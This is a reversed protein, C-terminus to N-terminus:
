VSIPGEIKGLHFFPYFFLLLLLLLLYYYYIIIIIIVDFFDSVLIRAVRVIKGFEM